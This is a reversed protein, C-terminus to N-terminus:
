AKFGWLVQARFNECKQKSPEGEAKERKRLEEESLGATELVFQIRRQVEWLHKGQSWILLEIANGGAKNIESAAKKIELWIESKESAMKLIVAALYICPQNLPFLLINLNSIQCFLFHNIVVIIQIKKKILILVLDLM